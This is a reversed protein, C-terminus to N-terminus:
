LMQREISLERELREVESELYKIRESQRERYARQKEAPTLAKGTAPRGPKRKAPQADLALPQTQKDAPDIM